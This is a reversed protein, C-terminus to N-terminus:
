PAKEGALMGNLRDVRRKCVALAEVAGDRAVALANSYQLIQKVSRPAPPVRPAAPADPCVQLDLPVAVPAPQAACGALLLVIGIRIM